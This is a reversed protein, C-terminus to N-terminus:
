GTSSATNHAQHHFSKSTGLNSFPQGRGGIDNVGVFGKGTLWGPGPMEVKSSSLLNNPVPVAAVPSRLLLLSATVIEVDEAQGFFSLIVCVSNLSLRDYVRFGFGSRLIAVMRTRARGRVRRARRM